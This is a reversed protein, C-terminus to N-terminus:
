VLLIDIMQIQYPFLTVTNQMITTTQADIYAILEGTGHIVTTIFDYWNM